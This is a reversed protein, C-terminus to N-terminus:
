SIMRYYKGQLKWLNYDRNILAYHAKKLAYPLSEVPCKESYEKYLNCSASFVDKIIVDELYQLRNYNIYSLQSLLIVYFMLDEPLGIRRNEDLMDEIIWYTQVAKQSNKSTATIGSENKKWLYVFKATCAIKKAKRFVLFRINTDEFASYNQPFRIDTFLERKYLKGWPVGPIEKALVMNSEDYCFEQMKYEDLARGSETCCKWSGVVIDASERQAIAVLHGFAGSIVVDDADVFTIYRGKAATIGTNRAGSAGLNTQKIYRFGKKSLYPKVAEDTNDTSGDNVLIVEFPFDTTQNYINDLCLKISDAANYAPVIVSLVMESRESLEPFAGGVSEPKPFIKELEGRAAETEAEPVVCRGSKSSVIVKLRFFSRLIVAAPLALFEIKLKALLLQYMRTHKIM